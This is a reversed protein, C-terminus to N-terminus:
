KPPNREEDRKDKIKKMEAKLFTVSDTNPMPLKIAQELTLLSNLKDRYEAWFGKDPYDKLEELIFQRKRLLREAEKFDEFLVDLASYLDRSLDIEFDIRIKVEDKMAMTIFADMRYSPFSKLNINQLNLEMGTKTCVMSEMLIAGQKTLDVILSHSHAQNLITRELAAGSEKCANKKDRSTKLLVESENRLEFYYSSLVANVLEIQTMIITPATPNSGVFGIPM